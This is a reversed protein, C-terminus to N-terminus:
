DKAPSLLLSESLRSERNLPKGPFSSAALLFFPPFFFELVFVNTVTSHFVLEEDQRLGSLQWEEMSAAFAM